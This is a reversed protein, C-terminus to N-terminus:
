GQDDEIIRGREVEYLPTDHTAHRPSNHHVYIM